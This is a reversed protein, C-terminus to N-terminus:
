GFRMTYVDASARGKMMERTGDFGILPNHPHVYIDTYVYTQVLACMCVHKWMCGCACAPVLTECARMRHRTRADVGVLSRRMFEIAGCSDVGTM